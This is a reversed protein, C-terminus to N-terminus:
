LEEMKRVAKYLTEEEESLDIGALFNDKKEWSECVKDAADLVASVNATRPTATLAGRATININMVNNTQVIEHLERQSTDEILKLAERLLVNEAEVRDNDHHHTKGSLQTKLREIEAQLQEIKDEQTISDTEYSKIMQAIASDTSM